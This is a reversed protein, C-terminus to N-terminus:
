YGGLVELRWIPSVFCTVYQIDLINSALFFNLRGSSSAGSIQADRILPVVGVLDEQPDYDEEELSSRLNTSSLVIV